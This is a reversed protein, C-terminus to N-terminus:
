RRLILNICSEEFKILWLIFFFNEQVRYCFLAERPLNWNVNVLMLNGDDDAAWLVRFIKMAITQKIDEVENWRRKLLKRAAFIIIAILVKANKLCGYAILFVIELFVGRTQTGLCRPYFQYACCLAHCWISLIKRSWISYQTLNRAACTCLSEREESFKKIISAVNFTPYFQKWAKIRSSGGELHCNVRIESFPSIDNSSSANNM